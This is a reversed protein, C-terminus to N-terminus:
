EGTDESREKVIKADTGKAVGKACITLEGAKRKGLM